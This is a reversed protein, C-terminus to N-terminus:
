LQTDAAPRVTWLESVLLGGLRRRQQSLTFGAEDLAKRHNPLRFVSLGTLVWFLLYLATILPRAVLWGFWGKPIAFESVVWKADPRASVRLRKALSAVERTTLCDLFFHTVILDLTPVLPEWLRADAVHVRIRSSRIGANDVLARLMAPSADLADVLVVPNEKLLRATFRGDGDGLILANRSARLEDLFAFRCRSLLPGFSAMEMWRYVGALGDFNPAKRM